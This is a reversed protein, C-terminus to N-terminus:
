RRTPYRLMLENASTSVSFEELFSIGKASYEALLVRILPILCKLMHELKCRCRRGKFDIVILM